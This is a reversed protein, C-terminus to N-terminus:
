CLLWLLPCIVNLSSQKKLSVPLDKLALSLLSLLDLVLSFMKLDLPSFDSDIYFAGAIISFLLTVINITCIVNNVKASEKM